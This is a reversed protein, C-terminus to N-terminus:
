WGRSDLQDDPRVAIGVGTRDDREAGTTDEGLEDGVGRGSEGRQGVVLRFPQDGGGSNETQEAVAPTPGRGGVNVGDGMHEDDHSVNEVGM